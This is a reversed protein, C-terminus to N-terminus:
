IVAIRGRWAAGFIRFPRGLGMNPLWRRPWEASLISAMRRQAQYPRLESGFCPPLASRYVWLWAASWRPPRLNDAGKFAVDQSELDLLSVCGRSPAKNGIFGFSYAASSCAIVRLVLPLFRDAALAFMGAIPLPVM